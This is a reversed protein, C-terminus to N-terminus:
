LAEKVKTATVPAIISLQANDPVCPGSKAVAEDIPVRDYVTGLLGEYFALIHDRIQGGNQLICGRDDELTLISNARRRESIVVNYYRTNANGDGAWRIKARQQLERLYLGHSHTFEARAEKERIILETNLPDIALQQQM